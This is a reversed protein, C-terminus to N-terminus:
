NSTLPYFLVNTTGNDTKDSSELNSQIQERFRADSSQQVSGDTLLINGGNPGHISNGWGLKSYKLTTGFTLRPVLYMPGVKYVTALMNTQFEVNRDTALIMNPKTEEAEVGLCYSVAANGRGKTWDATTTAFSARNTGTADVVGNKFAVGVWNTQTPQGRSSDSPCAVVKPTGLENRAAYYPHFTFLQDAKNANYLADQSGGEAMNISMPFRGENDTAFLRFAVGVQKENNACSIRQAKAKAKALAPLLMGALIAIIAIVVLLEILTFASKKDRRFVRSM